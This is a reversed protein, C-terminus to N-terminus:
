EMTKVSLCYEKQNKKEGVCGFFVSINGRRDKPFAYKFSNSLLENLILGCPIHPCNRIDSMKGCMGQPNIKFSNSGVTEFVSKRFVASSIDGDKETANAFLFGFPINGKQLLRHFLIVL